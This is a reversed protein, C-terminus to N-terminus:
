KKGKRRNASRFTARELRAPRALYELDNRHTLDTAEEDESNRASRPATYPPGPGEFALFSLDTEGEPPTQEAETM